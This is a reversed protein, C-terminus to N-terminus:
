CRRPSQPEAGAPEMIQRYKAIGRSSIRVPAQRSESPHRAATECDLPPLIRAPARSESDNVSARMECGTSIYEIPPHRGKSACAAVRAHKRWCGIYTPLAVKVSAMVTWIECRTDVLMKASKRHWRSRRSGVLAERGAETIPGRYAM